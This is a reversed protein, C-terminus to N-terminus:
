LVLGSLYHITLRSLPRHEVFRLWLPQPLTDPAAPCSLLLGYCALTKPDPDDKATTQQVLRLEADQDSWAHLTPQGPDRQARSWWMEDQFGL